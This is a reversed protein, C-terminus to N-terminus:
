PTAPTTGPSAKQPPILVAGILYVIGNTAKYQKIVFGGNVYVAQKAVDVSFNIKDGSLATYAGASVADVDLAKGSVVHYQVLRKKQAATMTATSSGAPLHAFAESVPVFVTYPGKGTLTAAVGTSSFLSNFTSSDEVGAVVSAVNGSRTEVVTSNGPTGTGSTTQTTTAEGNPGPAVAAPASFYWWLGAVVIVVVIVGIIWAGINTSQNDM